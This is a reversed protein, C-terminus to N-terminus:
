ISYNMLAIDKEEVGSGFGGGEKQATSIEM